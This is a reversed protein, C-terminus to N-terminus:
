AIALYLFTVGNENLAHSDTDDLSFGTSTFTVGTLSGAYTDEVNSLDPYLFSREGSGSPRKYDVIVWSDTQATNKVMLFKPQFGVNETVGSTSGTYTGVKQVGTVSHFAYLIAETSTSYFTRNVRINTADAVEGSTFSDDTKAQTTNLRFYDWSDDLADTFTWWGTGLGTNKTIVLEPAADLGHEFSNTEGVEVSPIVKYIGFGTATNVSAGTLSLDGDDALGAAAKTSYGTGDVNYTNSNGGGKFCWAVYDDNLGNINGNAGRTFGDSDFSTIGNSVTTQTGASDSSLSKTTGRVSDYIAHSDASDRNKVWILDPQFGVGTISQTSANGTHTSVEFTSDASAEPAVFLRKKLSM